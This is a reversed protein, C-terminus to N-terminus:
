TITEVVHYVSQVPEDVVLEAIRDLLQGPFPGAAWRELHERSAWEGILLLDDPQDVSEAVDLRLLGHEDLLARLGDRDILALIEDRRGALARLHVLNRVMSRNDARPRRGPM